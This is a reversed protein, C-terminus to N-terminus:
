RPSSAAGSRRSPRPSHKPSIASTLSRGREAVTRATVALLTSATSRSANWASKAVRGGSLLKKSDSIAVRVRHDAEGAAVDDRAQAVVDVRREIQQHAQAHRQVQRHTGRAAGVQRGVAARELQDAAGAAGLHRGVYTVAHRPLQQLAQPAAALPGPSAD